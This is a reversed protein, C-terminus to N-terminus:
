RCDPRTDLLVTATGSQELRHMTDCRLSEITDQQKHILPTNSLDMEDLRPYM